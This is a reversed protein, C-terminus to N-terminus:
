KYVRALWYTNTKKNLRTHSETLCGWRRVAQLTATGGGLLPLIKTKSTVSM